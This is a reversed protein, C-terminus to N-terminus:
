KILVFTYRALDGKLGGCDPSGFWTNESVDACAWEKLEEKAIFADCAARDEASIGSDDGNVLYSAWYSYLEFRQLTDSEPEEFTNTDENWEWDQPVLFVDGDQYLRFAHGSIPDTLIANDCVTEWTEWYFEGRETEGEALTQDEDQTGGPGRALYDLDETKVGSLAARNVSRAFDRPIYQGRASDLFCHM